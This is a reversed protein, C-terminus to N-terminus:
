ISGLGRKRGFAFRRYRGDRGFIRVGWWSCSSGTATSRRTRAGGLDDQGESERPQERACQGGRDHRHRQVVVGQRKPRDAADVGQDGVFVKLVLASAEHNMRSSTSSSRRLRTSDLRTSDLRYPQRV